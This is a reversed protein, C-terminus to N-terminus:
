TIELQESIENNDSTRTNGPDGGPPLDDESVKARDGTKKALAPLVITEHIEQVYEKPFRKRFQVMLSPNFPQKTTFGSLGIFYQLYPNEAIEDVLDRDSLKKQVQILLSGLAMRVSYAKQGINTKKFSKVYQAEIEAWPIIAALICWRNDPNLKGGFPLYFEQSLLTQNEDHPYM